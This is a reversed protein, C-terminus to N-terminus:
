RKRMLSLIIKRIKLYVSHTIHYSFFSIITLVDAPILQTKEWMYIFLLHQFTTMRCVDKKWIFATVRSQSCHVTATLTHSIRFSIIVLFTYYYNPFRLFQFLILLIRYYRCSKLIVMEDKGRQIKLAAMCFWKSSSSTCIFIKRKVTM